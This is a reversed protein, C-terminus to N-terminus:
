FEGEKPPKCDKMIESVKELDEELKLFGIFDLVFAGLGRQRLNQAYDRYREEVSIKEVAMPKVPEKEEIPYATDVIEKLLDTMFHMQITRENGKVPNAIGQNMKRFLDATLRVLHPIQGSSIKYNKM